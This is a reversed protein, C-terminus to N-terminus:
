LTILGRRVGERIAESRNTVGLKSFISSVHFKVTNDSISLRLAIQKNSCGEGLLQLVDIERDTINTDNRTSFAAKSREVGRLWGSLVEPPAAVLGRNVAELVVRLDEATASVMAAGWALQFQSVENVPLSTPAVIFLIRRNVLEVNFASYEEAFIVVIADEPIDAGGNCEAHVKVGPIDRLLAEVGARYVPSRSLVVVEIVRNNDKM